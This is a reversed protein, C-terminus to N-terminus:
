INESHIIYPIYRALDREANQKGRLKKARKKALRYAEALNRIKGMNRASRLQARIQGSLLPKQM